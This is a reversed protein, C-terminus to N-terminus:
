VLPASLCRSVFSGTQDEDAMVEEDSAYPKTGRQPDLVGMSFARSGSIATRSRSWVGVALWERRYGGADGLM